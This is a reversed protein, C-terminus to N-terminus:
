LQILHPPAKSRPSVQNRLKARLKEGQFIVLSVAKRRRSQQSTRMEFEEPPFPAQSALDLKKKFNKKVLLHSQM